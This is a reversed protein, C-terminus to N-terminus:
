FRIILGCVNRQWITFSYHVKTWWSSCWQPENAGLIVRVSIVVTNGNMLHCWLPRFYESEIFCCRTLRRTTKSKHLHNPCQRWLSIKFNALSVLNNVLTASLFVEVFQILPWILPLHYKIDTLTFDHTNSITIKLPLIEHLILQQLYHMLFFIQSNHYWIIDLHRQLTLM